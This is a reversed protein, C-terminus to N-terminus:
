KGEKRHREEWEEILMLVLKHAHDSGQVWIRFTPHGPTWNRKLWAVEESTLRRGKKGM